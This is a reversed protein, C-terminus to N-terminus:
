WYIAVFEANLFGDAGAEGAPGEQAQSLSSSKGDLGLGASVLAATRYQAAVVPDCEFSLRAELFKTVRKFCARRDSVKELPGAEELLTEDVLGEVDGDAYHVALLNVYEVIAARDRARRKDEANSASRSTMLSLASKGAEDITRGINPVVADLVEALKVPTWSDQLGDEYLRCFARHKSKSFLVRRIDKWFLSQEGVGVVYAPRRAEADTGLTGLALAKHALWDKDHVRIIEYDVLRGRVPILGVLFKELIKNIAEAQHLSSHVDTGFVEPSGKAISLMASVVSSVRFVAEAELEIEVEILQGRKLKAPDVLWGAEILKEVAGIDELSSLSPAGLDPPIARIALAEKELEYLEKFTTQVVSKRLVQSSSKKVELAKAAVEARSVGLNSGFSGSIEDQLTSQETQTFETAIPGLRSAILSYVSVEDLYVFERLDSKHRAAKRRRWRRFGSRLRGVVSM